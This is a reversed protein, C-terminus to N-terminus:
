RCWLGRRYSRCRTEIAQVRRREHREIVARPGSSLGGAAVRVPTAFSAPAPPLTPLPGRPASDARRLITTHRSRRRDARHDTDSDTAGKQSAADEEAAPEQRTLIPRVDVTDDGLGADHLPEVRFPVIIRDREEVM